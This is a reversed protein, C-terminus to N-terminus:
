SSSGETVVRTALHLMRNSISIGTQKATRMNVGFRIKGRMTHLHITGGYDLFNPIDSITVIPWQSLLPLIYDLQETESTSIFVLHCARADHPNSYRNVVFPRGGSTRGALMEELEHGFPDEGLVCLRIPAGSSEFVSNPWTIYRTFKYLFAMQITRQAADPLYYAEGNVDKIVQHQNERQVPIQKIPEDPKLEGQPAVTEAAESWAPTVVLLCLSVAVLLATM